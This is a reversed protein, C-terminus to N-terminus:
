RDVIRDAQEALFFAAVPCGDDVANGFLEATRPGVLSLAHGRPWRFRTDEIMKKRGDSAATRRRLGIRRLGVSSRGPRMELGPPQGLGFLEASAKKGVRRSMLLKEMKEPKHGETGSFQGVGKLKKIPREGRSRFIGSEMHMTADHQARGIAQRFGAVGKPCRQLEPGVERVRM